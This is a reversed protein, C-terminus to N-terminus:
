TPACAANVAGLYLVGALAYLLGFLLNRRSVLSRVPVNFSISAAVIPLTWMSISASLGWAFVATEVLVAHCVGFPGAAIVPVVIGAGIMPHLGAQGLAVLVFVLAVILAFGSVLGPTVAAGFAHASPLAAVVAALITAGAVILLEDALRGFSEFARRAAERAAEPGLAALYALCCAPVVLAVSQLGNLGVFANAAVVAAVVIAMPAVLPGLQAVSSRFAAGRLAPTFLAHSLALGIAALGVGVSMAEWVAVGPVLQSTFAMAIFFPSWMVATGVGRASSSALGERRAEGAGRSVVPALISMAGVNLVAGLAHSGYLTWNQAGAADLGGLGHRLRAIRPSAEATARLFLVSPLFAGFIQARGFGAALADPVGGRWAMVASTGAVVLFLARIHRNARVLALAVFAALAAGGLTALPPAPRVIRALEVLWVAALLAGSLKALRAAPAAKLFADGM